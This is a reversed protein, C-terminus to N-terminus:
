FDDGTEELVLRVRVVKEKPGLCLWDPIYDYLYAKAPNKSYGLGTYYRGSKTKIVFKERSFNM